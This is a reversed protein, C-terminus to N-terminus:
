AQIDRSHQTGNDRNPQLNVEGCNLPCPNRLLDLLLGRDAVAKEYLSRVGALRIMREQDALERKHDEAIVELRTM